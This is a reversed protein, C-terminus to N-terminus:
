SGLISVRNKTVEVVNDFELYFLATINIEPPNKFKLTAYIGGQKQINFHNLSCLDTTLNFAYLAYGNAFDEYSINKPVEGM